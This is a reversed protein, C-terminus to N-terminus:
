YKAVAPGGFRYNVGIRALLLHDSQNMTATIPGSTGTTLGRYNKDPTGIYLVESRVSWNRALAWETGFGAAWGWNWDDTLFHDNRTGDAHVHSYITRTHLAAAGGTVYLLMQDAVIGARGRLTVVGDARVSYGGIENSAPSGSSDLLFRDNGLWAGDVEVGWLTNCNAFNYGAQGGVAGGFSRVNSSPNGAILTFAIDERWAEHYSSGGNIGAYLGGFQEAACTPRMAAPAANVAVDAAMAPASFVATFAAAAIFFKKM